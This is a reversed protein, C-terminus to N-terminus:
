PETRSESEEVSSSVVNELSFDPPIDLSRRRNTQPEEELDEHCESNKPIEANNPDQLYEAGNSDRPDELDEPGEPNEGRSMNSKVLSQHGM